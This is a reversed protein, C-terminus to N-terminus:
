IFLILWCLINCFLIDGLSDYFWNRYSGYGTKIIKGNKIEINYEIIEWGITSILVILFIIFNNLCDIQKAISMFLITVLSHFWLWKNECLGYRIFDKLNYRDKKYKSMPPQSQFEGNYFDQNM